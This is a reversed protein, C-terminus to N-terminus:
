LDPPSAIQVVSSKNVSGVTAGSAGTLFGFFHLVHERRGVM